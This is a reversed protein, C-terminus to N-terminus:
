KRIDKYVEIAVDPCMWACMCCGTCKGEDEFVAFHIGKKNLEESLEIQKM